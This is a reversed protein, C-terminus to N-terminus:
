AARSLRCSWRQTCSAECFAHTPPTSFAFLRTVLKTVIFVIGDGVLTVNHVELAIYSNAVFTLVCTLTKPVLKVFVLSWLVM